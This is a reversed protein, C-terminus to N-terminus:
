FKSYTSHLKNRNGGIGITCLDMPAWVFMIKTGIGVLIFKLPHWWVSVQQRWRIFTCCSFNLITQKLYNDSADRLSKNINNNLFLNYDNKFLVNRYM